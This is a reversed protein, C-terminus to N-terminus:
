YSSDIFLRKAPDKRRLLRRTHAFANHQDAAFEERWCEQWQEADLAPFYTDGTVETDIETLYIREAFALAQQYLMGGGAIMVEEASQAAAFAANLDAVIICGASQYDPNRTVVINTRGPLPRGISEHTRRGLIVPKGMTIRKFFQLDSSLHWLMTNDRGIVRNRDMAVILSIIM